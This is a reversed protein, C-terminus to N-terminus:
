ASRAQGPSVQPNEFLRDVAQTEAWGNTAANISVEPNAALAEIVKQSREILRQDGLSFERLEAAIRECM